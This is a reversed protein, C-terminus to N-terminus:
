RYAIESFLELLYDMIEESPENYPNLGMMILNEYFSTLSPIKSSFLHIAKFTDKDISFIAYVEGDVEHISDIPYM